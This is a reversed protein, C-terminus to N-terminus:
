KAAGNVGAIRGMTLANLFSSGSMYVLDYLAGNSAEGAAYLNLIPNGNTDLVRAEKDTKLGGITGTFVPYIEVAYFPPQTAFTMYDVRAGFAADVGTTAAENYVAIDHLFVEKDFGMMDALEELSDAKHVTPNEENAALIEAYAEVDGAYICYYPAADRYILTPYMTPHSHENIFRAGTKDVIPSQSWPGGLGAFSGDGVQYSMGLRAGNEYVDAGIAEAMLIGDGTNSVSGNLIAGKGVHDPTYKELLEENAAFGGTALIVANAYINFTKDGQEVKAGIVANNEDTILAVAKTELMYEVGLENARAYLLDTPKGNSAYHFRDVGEILGFSSPQSFEFGNEKLWDITDAAKSVVYTIRDPDIGSNDRAYQNNNFELWLDVYAEVTDEIGYKKQESSEPAGIGGGAMASVGGYYPMKDIAITKAGAEAAAVAAAGGAAGTGVVLVDCTVDDAHMINKGIEHGSALAYGVGSGSSYAFAYMERNSVEGGAYLGNIVSGDERIVQFDLNTKVGGITGGTCVYIRAAYYPAASIPALYAAGKGFEEDVGTEAAKNYKAISEALNAADVNMLKALEDITDAKVIEVGDVALELTAVDGFTSDGIAWAIGDELRSLEVTCEYTMQGEDFFRQAQSNVVMRNWLNISMVFSNALASRATSGLTIVYPDNYMVGGVDVAMQMGDGTSGHGSTTLDIWDAFQPLDARMMEESAAFGGTALVVGKSAYVDYSGNEDTVTAGIVDGAENTILKTGATNLRLDAGHEELWAVMQDILMYGGEPNAMGDSILYDPVQYYTGPFFPYAVWNAVGDDQLWDVAEAVQNFYNSVREYNPYGSDRGLKANEADSSAKWSALWADHDNELGVSNAYRTGYAAVVAGSVSTSGGFRGMKEVLMVKEAGNDMASMAAALGTGGGGIVLVEVNATRDGVDTVAKEIPKKLEEPDAGAQKVCDEVATLIANSTITAGSVTDVALSQYAVIAEPVKAIAPDSIGATENHEGIKVEVIETDSFTVEVNVDGGMGKAAATYTGATYAAASAPLTLCSMLMALSMILAFFKKM